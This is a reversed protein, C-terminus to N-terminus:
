RMSRALPHARPDGRFARYIVANEIVRQVYNRTETFPILEIWDIPDIRADRPDGNTDMWEAARRPGANYAAVALPVSGDFQDLLGRLFTTGLRINYAPDATLATLSVPVGLKRATAAATAPMLQMLGRAGAPSNAAVDFSSEQRIVALALAPDVGADDPIDAAIPWGTDLPVLGVAGARRALAVATEALGLESALRGALPKDAADPTIEQLRLLFPGARRSEGWAVLRLAARALERGAYALGRAPDARVEAAAKIRTTLAQWGDDVRLAALQGYFTSPYAAARRYEAVAAEGEAARALWYHARAQTIAAESLGALRQFHRTAAAPDGLRELAVFGALFEADGVRAPGKGEALAYAGAADGQRLRRRALLNREAWFDAERDAGALTEAALGASKWLALANDDQGARRLWRASELTLAPDNRAAEGLAEVSGMASPDDRRLALRAVGLPRDAPDVRALQWTAAATDTWALRDFRAWQAARDLVAIWRQAVRTEWAADAPGAQWARRAFGGADSRNQRAAAEACRLLADPSLLPANARDCEALVAVDDPDAVLAASRRQALAVRAPWDPNDALFGAIEAGRAAGPSLLRYFTVLKRAVPDAMGATAAEAEAWRGARILGPVDQARTEHATLLLALLLLLRAMGCGLGFAQGVRVGPRAERERMWGPFGGQSVGSRLGGINLPDSTARIVGMRGSPPTSSFAKAENTSQCILSPVSPMM